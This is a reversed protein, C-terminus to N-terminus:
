YSEMSTMEHVPSSANLKWKSKSLYLFCECFKIVFNCSNAYQHSNKYINANLEYKFLVIPINENRKCDTIMHM